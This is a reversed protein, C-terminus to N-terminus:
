EIAAPDTLDAQFTRHGEGSLGDVVEQAGQSNANFHVAIRAGKQACLMAAKGGIGGSAGTILIIPNEKMYGDSVCWRFFGMLNHYSHIYTTAKWNLERRGYLFFECVSQRNVQDIKQVRGRRIYLTIVKKYGKITNKARGRVFLAHDCFKHMLIEIDM